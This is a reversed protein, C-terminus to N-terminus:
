ECNGKQLNEAAPVKSIWNRFKAVLEDPPLKHRDEFPKEHDLARLLHRGLIESHSPRNQTILYVVSLETCEITIVKNGPFVAPNAETIPVDGPQTALRAAGNIGYWTARLDAGRALVHRSDPAIVIVAKVPPEYGDALTYAHTPLGGIFEDPELLWLAAGDALAQRAAAECLYGSRSRQHFSRTVAYSDTLDVDDRVLRWFPKIVPLNDLGGPLWGAILLSASPLSM